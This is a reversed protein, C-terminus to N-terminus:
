KNTDHLTEWQDAVQLSTSFIYQGLRVRRRMLGAEGRDNSGVSLQPPLGDHADTTGMAYQCPPIHVHVLTFVLDM